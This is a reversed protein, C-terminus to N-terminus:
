EGAYRRLGSQEQILVPEMAFAHRVAPSTVRVAAVHSLPDTAPILGWRRKFQHLGDNLFPPTRGADLRRYGQARAWEITLAFAAFGAGQQLLIGDGHRVGSLAMWLTDGWPVTCMGAVRNRGRTIIHLTGARRLKALLRASPLGAWQGYRVLAHPEVMERYFEEWDAADGAQEIGFGQKRLKRLNDRLGYSPRRPPLTALEGYWRVAHPIIIWGARRFREALWRHVEVIVPGAGEQSLAAPDWAVRRREQVPAALAGFLRSCLPEILKERGIEVVETEAGALSVWRRRVRGRLQFPLSLGRHAAIAASSWRSSYALVVLREEVAAALSLPRRARGILDRPEDNPEPPASPTELVGTGSTM